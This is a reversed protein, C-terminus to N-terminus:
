QPKRSGASTTAIAAQIFTLDGTADQQMRASGPNSTKEDIM